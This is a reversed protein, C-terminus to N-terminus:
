RTLIEQAEAVLADVLAGAPLTRSLSAAQGSFLAAFDKSGQEVSKIHLPLTLSDQLPFAAVERDQSALEEVFRNVIARAPRGTFARTLITGDDRAQQLVERHIPSAASEPCLLFATGMQVGSAGLAFAAAIGRGDAIGGAAIVPVSVADVVQPVLSFTGVNGAELPESFTGRHGGADYGQAIIAHVGGAELQQAETVTTASCLITSGTSKLANLMEETPLGFHFSVIEPQLELVAELTAADFSRMPSASLTLAQGLGLEEYYTALEKRMTAADDSPYVPTDHAFFNIIFPRTTSSRTEDFAERLKEVSMEGCGLSGVGGANSVAAALAPGDSGAMPAQIIPHDIGLLDTLDSRPWM